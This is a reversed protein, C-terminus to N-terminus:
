LVVMLVAMVILAAAVGRKIWRVDRDIPLRDIPMGVLDRLRRQRHAISGHRWSWRTLPIHSVEAVMRLADIMAHAAHPSIRDSGQEILFNKPQPTFAWPSPEPGSSVNAAPALEGYAHSQAQELRPPDMTLQKAAFADAQWEMRRSVFGLVTLAGGVVLVASAIDLWGGIVSEQLSPELSDDSMSVDPRPEVFNQTHSDFAGLLTAVGVIAAAIVGSSALMSGALWPIHRLRVHAIEHAMVAEVQPRPMLDLLADSILIYRVPPVLGIAAANVLTGHTRWILIGGMKLGHRRCMEILREYMPGSRLPVTDWAIRVVLPSFAFVIGVGVLQMVSFVTAGGRGDPESLGLWSAITPAYLSCTEVWATILLMSVLILMAHHRFNWWVFVGRAPTPWVTHGQEAQRFIIADRVRREVPYLSWWGLAIVMLPPWIAVVEDVLIMDGIQARVADLWGFVLVNVAHLGIAAFRGIMVIRDAIAVYRMRGTQDLARGCFLLLVHVIMALVLLPLLCVAWPWPGDIGGSGYLWEALGAATGHAATQDKLLMVVFLVIVWPQM